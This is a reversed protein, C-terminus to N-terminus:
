AREPVLRIGIYRELTAADAALAAADARHVIRGRELILARETLGLAVAAHQEVLLIALGEERIMTRIAAALEAALAPALGELPEDLLLLVPNLLLARAIALMQQEGGSLQRGLHRRREALRPFLAYARALTWPGPLSAVTLNEEVTLSAFIDREQPVWGLGSGARSQPPLAHIPRGRLVVRGRQLRTQGMLTAILTTKGAGNRGLLALAEGEEMSFSVGDLVLGDGYGASVEDVELLKEAM